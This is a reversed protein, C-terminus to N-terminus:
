SFDGIMKKQFIERKSYKLFPIIVNNKNGGSLDYTISVVPVGTNNEIKEAMAETVMSPCCFSPSVQVFLAIDPHEKLIYHIKLINDMSEGTHETRMGYEELIEEPSDSYDIENENLLPAFYKYFRKEMQTAAFFLTRNSLLDLYKGEKFWKKFYTSAIMRVFRSYPTTVVEGGNEEIYSILNQNIVNNDRMYLDGFISIKPRKEKKVKIKSFPSLAEKLAEEKSTKHRFARSIISTANKIAKDTDGKHIEYPRIQCGVKRLLGGFM